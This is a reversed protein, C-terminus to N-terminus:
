SAVGVAAADDLATYIRELAAILERRRLAYTEPDISQERQQQELATLEEFLRERRSELELRILM